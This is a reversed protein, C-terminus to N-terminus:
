EDSVTVTPGGPTPRDVRTYPLEGRHVAAAEGPEDPWHGHRTFFDRAAEEDEREGSGSRAVWILAVILGIGGITAIVTAIASTM